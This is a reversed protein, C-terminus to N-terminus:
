TSSLLDRVYADVMERVRMFPVGSVSWGLRGCMSAISIGEDYMKSVQDYFPDDKPNYESPGGLDMTSLAEVETLPGIEDREIEPYEDGVDLDFPAISAPVQRGSELTVVPDFLGLQVPDGASPTPDREDAQVTEPVSGQGIRQLHAAFEADTMTVITKGRGASTWTHGESREVKAEYLHLRTPEGRRLLERKIRGRQTKVWSTYEQSWNWAYVSSQGTIISEVGQYLVMLDVYRLDAPTYENKLPDFTEPTLKRNVMEVDTLTPTKNTM